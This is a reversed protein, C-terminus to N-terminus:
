IFNMGLLTYLCVTVYGVDCVYLQSLCMTMYSVGCDFYLVRGNSWFIENQGKCNNGSVLVMQCSSM